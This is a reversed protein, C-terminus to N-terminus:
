SSVDRPPLRAVQSAGLDIELAAVRRDRASMEAEATALADALAAARQQAAFLAADAAAQTGLLEEAMRQRAAEALGVQM